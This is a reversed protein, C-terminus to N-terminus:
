PAVDLSEAAPDGLQGLRDADEHDRSGLVEQDVDGDPVVLIEVCEDDVPEGLAGFDGVDAGAHDVLVQV